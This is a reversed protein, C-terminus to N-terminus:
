FGMGPFMERVRKDFPRPKGDNAQEPGSTTRGDRMAKALVGALEKVKEPEKEALNNREGPDTKLNYLQVPYLGEAEPSDAVPKSWGGSDACLFLKWEGKRIAFSGNQSHHVTFERGYSGEKTLLPVLSFSDEAADVPIEKAKGALDAATAFFDGSCITTECVSGAAVKGPWRVVFPERHGGEWLDSKTGRWDGNPKHGQRELDAIKASPACGNDSTFIVVTDRTVGQADLEEMVEGVVADTEMLFDGYAGIGSKGRWRETPVLPTHPSTLPLYLFFPAEKNAASRRIFDRAERTFDRLCNVADFDETAPGPRDWGKAVTPVGTARDNKLYVYPAMDLSAPIIFSEGFGLVRPGGKVPKAYDIRWGDGEKGDGTPVEAEPLKEWGLGLHWKGIVATQYGADKLFSAVTARKEPILPPGYGGLVGRKLTTRWNYRGTMIAYRTPTCVSSTTHADTFRMGESALKDIAPTPVKGGEYGPDGWGMDDVLIFVINPAKGGAVGVVGAGTEGNVVGPASLLLLPALLM